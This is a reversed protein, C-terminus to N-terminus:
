RSLEDTYYLGIEHRFVVLSVRIRNNLHRRCATWGLGALPGRCFADLLLSYSPWNGTSVTQKRSLIIHPIMLM